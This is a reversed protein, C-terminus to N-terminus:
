WYEFWQGMRITAEDAESIEEELPPSDVTVEPQYFPIYQKLGEHQSRELPKRQSVSEGHAVFDWRESLGDHEHYEALVDGYMECGIQQFARHLDPGPQWRGVRWRMQRDPFHDEGPETAFAIELPMVYAIGWALQVDNSEEGLLISIEDFDFESDEDDQEDDSDSAPRYLLPSWLAFTKLALMNAAAKAFAALLPVLINENPQVRFTYPREMDDWRFGMESTKNGFDLDKETDALPPYDDIAHREPKIPPCKM